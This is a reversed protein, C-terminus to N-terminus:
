MEGLWLAAMEPRKPPPYDESAPLEPFKRRLREWTTTPMLVAQRIFNTETLQERWSAEIDNLSPRLWLLHDNVRVVRTLGAWSCGPNWCGECVIPEIPDAVWNAYEISNSLMFGGAILKTWKPRPLDGQPPAIWEELTLTECYIM